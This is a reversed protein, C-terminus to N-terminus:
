AAPSHVEKEGNRVLATSFLPERKMMLALVTSVVGAAIIMPYVRNISKIIAELIRARDPPALTDFFSSDAGTVAQQVTRLPTNPLVKAIHSAAQNLFISHSVTLALTIGTIQGCGLYAVTLPVEAPEVKAQAVAFSAQVYLGSGFGCLVSYGYIASSHSDVGVTATFLAGGITSLIGGILYWPMYYGIKGMAAGNFIIGFVNAFVFPLLHVASHLASDNQVFQFYLPIFYMTVYVVTVASAIQAFLINMQWSKLISVPVLRQEKTTFLASAQQIVLAAWLVGSLIFLVIIRASGWNYVAGGFAIAM